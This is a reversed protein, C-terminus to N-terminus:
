HWLSRNRRERVPLMRSMIISPRSSECLRCQGDAGITKKFGFSGVFPGHDASGTNVTSAKASIMATFSGATTVILDVLSIEFESRKNRAKLV